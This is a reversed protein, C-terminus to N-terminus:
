RGGAEGRPVDVCQARKSQLFRPGDENTQRMLTGDLRKESNLLEAWDVAEGAKRAQRIMIGDLRMGENKRLLEMEEKYPSEETWSRELEVETAAEAM